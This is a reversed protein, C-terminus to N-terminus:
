IETDSTQKDRQIITKIQAIRNEMLSAWAGPVRLSDGSGDANRAVMGMYDGPFHVLHSPIVIDVPAKAIKQLSKLYEQQLSIPLGNEMLEAKSLGNLGLGGHMGLLTKSGNDVTILFSTCGPTHGPTHVPKIQINGFDMVSDYDFYGTVEFEPVHEEEIILDRRESLFFADGQPFWIECGTYEQVKRAAGCHDVHGHSILVKKINKPDFGVKRISEFLLYATEQLAVDILVLGQNTDLLYSGVYKNGVYYVHPVVQYPEMETMWPNAIFNRLRTMVMEYTRRAEENVKM